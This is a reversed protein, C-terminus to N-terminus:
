SFSTFVGYYIWCLGQEEHLRNRVMPPNCSPAPTKKQKLAQFYYPTTIPNNSSKPLSLLKGCERLAQHETQSSNFCNGGLSFSANFSRIFLLFM